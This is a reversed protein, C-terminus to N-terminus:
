SKLLGSPFYALALPSRLKDSRLRSGLPEESGKVKSCGQLRQHFCQKGLYQATGRKFKFTPPFTLPGELWGDFAKHSRMMIGLEDAAVLDKHRGAKLAARVQVDLMAVSM